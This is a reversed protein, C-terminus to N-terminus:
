GSWSAPLADRQAVLFATEVENRCAAIAQDYAARAADVDGARSLLEARVAAPRHSQPVELGELADLGPAANTVMVEDASAVGPLEVGRQAIIRGTDVGEDVYHVTVGFVKVGYALAQGVADLGPFAPLLSPHVNVVRDPFRGLFAPTLLQMYGALVVLGIGHGTRHPLGPTKYGPDFGADTIVKRAAADVAECPVGVRAAALAAQSPPNEADALM